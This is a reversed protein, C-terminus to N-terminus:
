AIDEDDCAEARYENEKDRAPKIAEALLAQLLDLTKRRETATLQSVPAPPDFLDMQPLTRHTAM